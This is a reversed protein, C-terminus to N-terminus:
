KLTEYTMTGVQYYPDEFGRLGLGELVHFQQLADQVELLQDDTLSAAELAQAATQPVVRRICAELPVRIAWDTQTTISMSANYFYSDANQDYIEETESFSVNVIEIGDTSLRNRAVGWLYMATQDSIEMQAHPDRAVIDLDLTIDWRGGYELASPMRRSHIAVAMRDGAEGRRGFALTMGPIAKNHAFNEIYEWPGTSEAPYRYDVSLFSSGTLPRNLTIGGNEPDATFGPGELIPLSGPMEYVLLTGALFPNQTQWETASIKTASENQVELLPDVHFEGGNINKATIEIFYIGPATPFVGSNSKIAIADERIWEIALGPYNEVKSLHGYSIVTGQFNDASLSVQNASSAKLVIGFQPRERFSYKGQIHEVIDRYKPHYMWYNRLEHVFREKVAETLFHYM